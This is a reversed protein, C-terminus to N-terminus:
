GFVLDQIAALCSGRLLINMRFNIAMVNPNSSPAATATAWVAPLAPAPLVAPWAPLVLVAPWAPEVLEAVGPVMLVEGWLVGPAVEVVGPVM